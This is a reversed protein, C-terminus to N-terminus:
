LEKLSDKIRELWDSKHVIKRYHNQFRSRLYKRSYGIMNRWDDKLIYTANGFVPCELIVNNTFDFEFVIYGQWGHTGVYCKVPALTKIQEIREWDIEFNPGGKRRNLDDFYRKMSETSYGIGQPLLEFSLEEVVPEPPNETIVPKSAALILQDVYKKEIKFEANDVAEQKKKVKADSESYFFYEAADKLAARANSEWKDLANMVAEEHTIHGWEYEFGTQLSYSYFHDTEVAAEKMWDKIDRPLGKFMKPGVEGLEIYFDTWNPEDSTEM